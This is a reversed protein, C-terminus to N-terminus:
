TKKVLVRKNPNNMLYDYFNMSKTYYPNPLEILSEGSVMHMGPYQFVSIRCFKTYIEQEKYKIANGIDFVMDGKIAVMQNIVCNIDKLVDEKAYIGFTCDHFKRIFENVAYVHNGCGETHYYESLFKMADPLSYRSVAQLYKRVHDDDSYCYDKTMDEFEYFMEAVKTM